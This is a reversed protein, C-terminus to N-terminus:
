TIKKRRRIKNNELFSELDMFLKLDKQTPPTNGKRGKLHAVLHVIIEKKIEESSYFKELLRAFLYGALEPGESDIAVDHEIAQLKDKESSFYNSAQLMQVKTPLLIAISWDNLNKKLRRIGEIVKTKLSYMKHRNKERSHYSSIKVDNYEKGQNAGILLDEGFMIIDTNLSRNNENEFDFQEPKIQKIFQDIRAPDAGRFGYIRQNPDALAIIRSNENLLKVIEWQEVDTDQFEDVIIVPYARSIINRLKKAGWLLKKTVPAFLDFAIFGEREFIEQRKIKRKETKINAMKVAENAANMITFPYNKNVLYGHSRLINWFFGHYTNIEIFKLSVRDIHRSASEVVRAVTARAFSLFLIKQGNSLLEVEKKAKILAITTKGSGPGGLVILNNPSSLLRKRKECIKITM